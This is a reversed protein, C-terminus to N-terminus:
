EEILFEAPERALQTGEGIGHAAAAQHGDAPVVPDLGQDDGVHDV